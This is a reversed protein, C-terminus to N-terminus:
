GLFSERHHASVDSVGWHRSTGFEPRQNAHGIEIVCGLDKGFSLERPKDGRETDVSIATRSTPYREYATDVAVEIRNLSIPTPNNYKTKLVKIENKSFGADWSSCFSGGFIILAPSSLFRLIYYYMNSPELTYEALSRYIRTAAITNTIVSPLQFM